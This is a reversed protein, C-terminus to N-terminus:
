LKIGYRLTASKSRSNSLVESYHPKLKKVKGYKYEPLQMCICVTIKPDCVCGTTLIKFFDKVIKDELSHYTLCIIAGDKQIFDKVGNLSDYIESLEDNVEIRISQFVKRIAKEVFKPNQPPMSQQILNKLENTTYIPRSNVISNAIQNSNQLEGYKKFINILEKLSYQNIVEMASKNQTQDMRMDLNSNHQFSFGRNNSDIQHSSVGFDYFVGSLETINNEILYDKIKSFNLKHVKHGIQANAVAESDRDFGIFNLNLAKDSFYNFHSGYGYTADIFIGKPLSTLIDAVEKKMVGIHEKYEVRNNM